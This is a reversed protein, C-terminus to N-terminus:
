NWRDDLSVKAPSPLAGSEVTAILEDIQQEAAKLRMGQKDRIICCGVPSVTTDTFIIKTYERKIM